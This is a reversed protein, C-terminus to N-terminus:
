PKALKVLMWRWIADMSSPTLRKLLLCGHKVEQERDLLIFAKGERGLRSTTNNRTTIIYSSPVPYLIMSSPFRQTCYVLTIIPSLTKQMFLYDFSVFEDIIVVVWKTDRFFIFGYVGVREDHQM